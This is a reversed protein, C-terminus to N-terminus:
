GLICTSGESEIQFPVETGLQFNKKFKERNEQPVWFLLFGGGGAGLVKGGTAGCKKAHSYISDLEPTIALSNMARKNEWSENLMEGIVSIDNSTSFIDRCWKAMEVSRKISQTKSSINSTLGLSIDSSYRNIGSFVLVLCQELHLKVQPRIGIQEVKWSKSFNGFSIFNLGGLTCAIQDQSGVNENLIEQELFITSQALLEKDIKTQGRLKLLSHILGAAFASSSGMGSRAPLDGDHHIELGLNPYYHRIAERVAPHQILQFDSVNEILSYAIRYKHPFFPPLIRTTIYCYKDISFSVVAGENERYWSPFDSGGGFLSVRFPTRTIIM